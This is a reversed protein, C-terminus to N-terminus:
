INSSSLVLKGISFINTEELDKMKSKSIYLVSNDKFIIQEEKYDLFKILSTNIILGRELKFFIDINELFDEIDSFNRKLTFSKNNTLNFKTKRSIRCYDIYLVESFEIIGKYFTDKLYFQTFNNRKVLIDEISNEINYIDQRLICDDVYKSKLLTRMEKINNNGLLIIINCGKSSLNKIKESLNKIEIDLIVIKYEFSNEPSIQIFNYDLTEKLLTLLDSNADVGIKIM